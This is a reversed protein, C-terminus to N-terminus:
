LFSQAGEKSAIKSLRGDPAAKKKHSYIKEFHLHKALWM